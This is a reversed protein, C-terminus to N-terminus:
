EQMYGGVSGVRVFYKCINEIHFYPAGFVSGAWL